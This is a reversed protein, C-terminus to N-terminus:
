RPGPPSCTLCEGPPTSSITGIAQTQPVPTLLSGQLGAASAARRSAADELRALDAGNRTHPCPRIPETAGSPEFESSWEVSCSKGDESGEVHLTAKYNAVPLPKPERWGAGRTSRTGVFM